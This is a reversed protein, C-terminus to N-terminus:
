GHSVGAQKERAGVIISKKLVQPTAIAFAMMGALSIWGVWDGLVGQLTANSATAVEAMLTVQLPTLSSELALIRGYPDIIASDYNRDAKIMAARNEVARFVVHAFHKDAIGPWDGSPVAIIDAGNNAIRRATDTFDLDYCIIAGIVGLDSEYTPYTGRTASEEHVFVVPHNKAYVGLFEGEPSLITVENRYDVGYPLVLYAGTRAALDQLAETQYIQPDFNLAGEPWVIMDLHDDAIAETQALLINFLNEHLEQYRDWELWNTEKEDETWLTRFGPQLAAVRFTEAGPPKLLVLSLAIWAALGAGAGILWRAALTKRVPVADDDLRWRRDFWSLLYLGLAYGVFLTVLSMGFIGFVSAPQIIWPQRYYAYAIFGWTGLVPILSRILEVGVWGFAGNLVFWRYATTEHFTRTRRDTLFVFLGFILPLLKMYWPAGPLMLFAEMIYLGILGGIAIASGLSSFRRPLIRYQALIFPVFGLMALPWWGRPPMAATLMLASVASLGVGIILRYPQTWNLHIQRNSSIPAVIM